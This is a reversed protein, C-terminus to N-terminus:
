FFAFIPTLTELRDLCFGVFPQQDARAWSSNSNALLLFLDFSSKFEVNFVITRSLFPSVLVITEGLGIQVVLCLALYITALMVFWIGGHWTSRIVNM